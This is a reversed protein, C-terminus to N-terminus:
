RSPVPTRDMRPPLGEKLMRIHARGIGCCGGVIRAGTRVWGQAQSLYDEPAIVDVFQWDPRKWYGSHPYAGIPESWHERAVGLAAATDEVESHMVTLAHGGLAMLTDIGQALTVDGEISARRRRAQPDGGLLKVEGKEDIRCSFGVWVPLGTAVAAEMLHRGHELDRVMELALLDAGGEALLEAQEEYAARLREAPPPKRGVTEPFAGFNSLAGAIFVRRGGAARDRAEKALQVSRLNLERTLGGLGAEELNHRASSYTNTTIVDAGARIYDEHLERVTDAHTKLAVACWAAGDMPVGMAQLESGIAGDLIIVEGRKLREHLEDM